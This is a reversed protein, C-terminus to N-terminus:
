WDVEAVAARLGLDVVGSLIKRWVVVIYVVLIVVVFGSHSRHRAGLLVNTGCV